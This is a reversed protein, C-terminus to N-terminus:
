SNKAGLFTNTGIVGPLTQGNGSIVATWCQGNTTDLIAMKGEPGIVMKYRGAVPPNGSSAGAGFILAATLAAGLLLSKLDLEIKTKM